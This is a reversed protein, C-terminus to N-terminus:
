NRRRFDKQKLCLILSEVFRKMVLHFVEFYEATHQMKLERRPTEDPSPVSHTELKVYM